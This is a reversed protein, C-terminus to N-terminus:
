LADCTRLTRKKQEDSMPTYSTGQGNPTANPAARPQPAVNGGGRGRGKAAGGPSGSYALVLAKQQKTMRVPSGAANVTYAADHMGLKHHEDNHDTFGCITCHTGRQTHTATWYDSMNM